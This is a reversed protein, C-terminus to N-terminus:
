CLEFRFRLSGTKPCIHLRWDVHLKITQSAFESLDVNYVGQLVTGVFFRVRVSDKSWGASVGKIMLHGYIPDDEVAGGDCANLRSPNRKGRRFCQRWARGPSFCVTSRSCGGFTMPRSLLGASSSLRANVKQITWEFSSNMGAPPQPDRGGQEPGEIRLPPPDLSSSAAPTHATKTSPTVRQVDDMPHTLGPPPRFNVPLLRMSRQYEPRTEEFHPTVTRSLLISSHHSAASPFHGPPLGCGGTRGDDRGDDEPAVSLPGHPSESSSTAAPQGFFGPPKSSLPRGVPKSLFGPPLMSSTPLRPAGGGFSLPSSTEGPSSSPSADERPSLPVHGAQTSTDSEFRDRCTQDDLAVVKDAPRRGWFICNPLDFTTAAGDLTASEGGGGSCSSVIIDQIAAVM